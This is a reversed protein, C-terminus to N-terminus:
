LWEPKAGADKAAQQLPENNRTLNRLARYRAAKSRTTEARGGGGSVLAAVVPQLAGAEAARQQRAKSLGDLGAM